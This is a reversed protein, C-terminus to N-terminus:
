VVIIGRYGFAVDSAPGTVRSSKKSASRVGARRRAEASVSNHQEAVMM